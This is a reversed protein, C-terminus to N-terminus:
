DKPIFTTTQFSHTFEIAPQGDSAPINVVIDAELQWETDSTKTGEIFGDTINNYGYKVPCTNCSRYYFAQANVFDEIELRFSSIEPSIEFVIVETYEDDVTNEYPDTYLNYSFVLKDGDVIEAKTNIQPDESIEITSNSHFQATISESYPEPDENTEEESDESSEEEEVNVEEVVEEVEPQTIDSDSSCGIFLFALLLNSLYLKM